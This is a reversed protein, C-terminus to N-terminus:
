KKKCSWTVIRHGWISYWVLYAFGPLLIWFYSVRPDAVDTIAGYILPTVANGFLAM